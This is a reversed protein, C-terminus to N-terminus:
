SSRRGGYLLEFALGRLTHQFSRFREFVEDRTNFLGQDRLLFNSLDHEPRACALGCSKGLFDIPTETVAEFISEGTNTFGRGSKAVLAPMPAHLEDLDLWEKEVYFQPWVLLVADPIFIRTLRFRPYWFTGKVFFAHVRTPVKAARAIAELVAARQSCSGQRNQLTTSAPQWENVSYVPRLLQILRLHANRLFALGPGNPELNEALNRIDRHESDLITTAKLNDSSPFNSQETM